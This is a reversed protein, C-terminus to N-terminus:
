EGLFGDRQRRWLDAYIGNQALLEDHTGTEAVSGKSLVIIRDLHKLTSLRHAIVIATRGKMVESLAKQIYQESVSDLASTAEDLLILPAGALMARAIAIRQRQGGSLKVGREGVLSDFGSPLAQIFDLAQAKKTATTLEQRTIARKTGYEINEKISRNFLQTDQPVYTIHRRISQLSLGSIDMDNVRLSGGTPAHLGLLLSVLTSKGAGSHGVIGVHDGAAVSFSLSRLVDRNTQDPYAFDVADFTVSLAKATFNKGGSREDPQSLLNRISNGYSGYDRMLQDIEGGLQWITESASTIYTVFLAIDGITIEGRSFMWVSLGVAVTSVVAASNGKIVNNITTYRWSDYWRKVFLGQLPALTSLESRRANSIRVSVNNAMADVIRGSITSAAQSRADILALQKHSRYALVIILGIIWVGFLLALKWSAITLFAIASLFAFFQPWLAWLINETISRLKDAADNVWYGIQGSNANVFFSHTKRLTQEFYVKRAHEVFQPFFRRVHVDSLRWFWEDSFRLLAFLGILQWTTSDVARVTALHNILTRVVFPAATFM